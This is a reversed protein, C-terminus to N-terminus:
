GKINLSNTIFFNHQFFNWKSRGVGNIISSNIIPKESLVIKMFVLIDQVFKAKNKEEPSGIEVQWEYTKYDEYFSESLEELDFEKQILSM